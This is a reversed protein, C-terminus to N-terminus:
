GGRKGGWALEGGADYPLYEQGGDPVALPIQGAIFNRNKKFRLVYFISM